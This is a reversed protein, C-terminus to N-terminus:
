VGDKDQIIIVMSSISNNAGDEWRQVYSVPYDRAGITIVDGKKIDPLDAGALPVHYCEKVENPSAGDIFDVNGKSLAYVPTVRVNALWPEMDGFTVGDGM